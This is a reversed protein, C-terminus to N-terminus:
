QSYRLITDRIEEETIMEMAFYEDLSEVIKKGKNKITITKGSGDKKYIIVNARNGIIRAAEKRDYTAKRAQSYGGGFRPAGTGGIMGVANIRTEYIKPDESMKGSFYKEKDAPKKILFYATGIGNVNGVVYVDIGNDKLYSEARAELAPDTGSQIGLNKMAQEKVMSRRAKKQAVVVKPAAAQQQRNRYLEGYDFKKMENIIWQKINM